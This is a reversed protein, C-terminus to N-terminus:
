YCPARDPLFYRCCRLEFVLNKARVLAEGNSGDVTFTHNGNFPCSSDDDSFQEGELLSLYLLLEVFTTPDAGEEKIDLTYESNYQMATIQVFAEPPRIEADDVLLSLSMLTLSSPTTM